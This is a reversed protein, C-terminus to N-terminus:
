NWCKFISAYLKCIWLTIYTLSFLRENNYLFPDLWSPDSVYIKNLFEHILTSINVIYWNQTLDSVKPLSFTESIFFISEFSSFYPFKRMWNMFFNKWENLRSLAWIAEESYHLPWQYKLLMSLNLPVSLFISTKSLKQM